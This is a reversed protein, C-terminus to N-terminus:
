FTARVVYRDGSCADSCAAAFPMKGGKKPFGNHQM